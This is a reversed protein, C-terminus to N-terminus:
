DALVIWCVIEADCWERCDQRWWRIRKRFFNCKNRKMCGAAEKCKILDHKNERCKMLSASCVCEIISKPPLLFLHCLHRPEFGLCRWTSFYGQGFCRIGSTPGKLSPCCYKNHSKFIHLSQPQKTPYLVRWRKWRVESIIIAKLISLLYWRIYWWIIFFPELLGYVENM